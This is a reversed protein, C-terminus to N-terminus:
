CPILQCIIWYNGNDVCSSLSYAFKRPNPRSHKLSLSGFSSNPISEMKKCTDLVSLIGGMEMASYLCEGSGLAVLEKFAQNSCLILGSPSIICSPTSPFLEMGEKRYNNLKSSESGSQASSDMLKQALYIIHCIIAIEIGITSLVQQLHDTSQLVSDSNQPKPFGTVNINDAVLLNNEQPLNPM